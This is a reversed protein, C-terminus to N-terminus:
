VDEAMFCVRKITKEVAKPTTGVTAYNLWADIAVCQLCVFIRSEPMDEETWRRLGWSLGAGQPTSLRSKTGQTGMAALM